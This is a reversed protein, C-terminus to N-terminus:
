GSGSGRLAPIGSARAVLAVLAEGYAALARMHQARGADDSVRHAARSDLTTCANTLRRAHTVAQMAYEGEEPRRLPEAMWRELSTEAEGIAIGAARRAEAIGRELEADPEPGRTDLNALVVDRYALAAAAMRDIADPLRTREWSPFVVLAALLAIVGGVL